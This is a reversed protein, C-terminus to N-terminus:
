IFKKHFHLFIFLVLIVISTVQENCNYYQDSFITPEQGSSYGGGVYSETSLFKNYIKYCLVYHAMAPIRDQSLATGCKIRGAIVLLLVWHKLLKGTILALYRSNYNVTCIICSFNHEM